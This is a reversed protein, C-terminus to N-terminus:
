FSFISWVRQGAAPSAGRQSPDRAVTAPVIEYPGGGRKPTVTIRQVQGRVRLEDIRVADDQLVTRRVQPEPTGERPASDAQALALTSALGAICVVLRAKM